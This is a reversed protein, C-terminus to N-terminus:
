NNKHNRYSGHSGHNNHNSYSGADYQSLNDIENKLNEFNSRQLFEGESIDPLNSSSGSIHNKLIDLSEKLSEYQVDDIYEATSPNNDDFTNDSINSLDISPNSDPAQSPAAKNEKLYNIKERLEKIQEVSKENAKEELAGEWNIWDLQRPEHYDYFPEDTRYNKYSGHSKHNRHNGHSRHSM